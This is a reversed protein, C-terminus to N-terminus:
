VTHHLWDSTTNCEFAELYLFIQLILCVVNQLITSSYLGLHTFLAGKAKAIIHRSMDALEM